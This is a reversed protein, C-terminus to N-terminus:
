SSRKNSKLAYNYFLRLPRMLYYLPELARPFNFVNTDITRPTFIIRMYWFIYHFHLKWKDRRDEKLKLHYAYRDGLGMVVHRETFLQSRIRKAFTLFMLDNQVKQWGSFSFERGFFEYVLYLGLGLVNECGLHRAKEILREWDIEGQALILENVDCIWGFQEWGHRSGHLCLYILLDDFPLTKLNVNALCFNELRAWLGNMEFPLAFHSGSLKWHLEVNVLGDGSRFYIDKKDLMQWNTKNLWSISSIRTYGEDQLLQIASELQKPQVLIDLDVYQRASLDGYAQAALLPGKFPLISINNADFSRVIELLKGTLFMNRQLHAQLHETLIGKIHAPLSHSFKQLLNRGVLPFVANKRAVTLIYDWDLAYEFFRSIRVTQGSNRLSQSCEILLQNELDHNLNSLRDTM